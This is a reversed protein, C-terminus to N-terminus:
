RQFRFQFGSEQREGEEMHPMALSLTGDWSLFALSAKSFSGFQHMSIVPYTAQVYPMWIALSLYQIIHCVESTHTLPFVLLPM